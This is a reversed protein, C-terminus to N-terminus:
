GTCYLFKVEYSENAPVNKMAAAIRGHLQKMEVEKRELQQAAKLLSGRTKFQEVNVAGRSKEHIIQRLDSDELSHLYGYSTRGDTASVDQM